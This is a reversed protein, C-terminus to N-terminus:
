SRDKGATARRANLCAKVIATAPSKNKGGTRMELETLDAIVRDWLEAPEMHEREFEVFDEPLEDEDIEDIEAALAAIEEADDGTPSSYEELCDKHVWAIPELDPLAGPGPFLPQFTEQQDSAWCFMCHREEAM